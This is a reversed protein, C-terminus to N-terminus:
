FIRQWFRFDPFNLFISETHLYTLAWMLLAPVLLHTCTELGSPARSRTSWVGMLAAAAPAPHPRGCESREGRAPFRQARSRVLGSPPKGPLSTCGGPSVSPRLM